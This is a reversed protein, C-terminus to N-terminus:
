LNKTAPKRLIYNFLSIILVSTGKRQLLLLLLLGVDDNCTSERKIHRFSERARSDDHMEYVSGAKWM